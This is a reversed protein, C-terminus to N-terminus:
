NLKLINLIKNKVGSQKIGEMMRPTHVFRGEPLFEKLDLDDIAVYNTLEHEHVYLNIEDSRCQELESLRTYRVGWLTSTTDTVVANIGNLEFIRTLGEVDYEDKWDSSIIIVPNVAEIIDNLVKVCKKDFRSGHYEPHLKNSYLLIGVVLVGDIDLFIHPKDNM